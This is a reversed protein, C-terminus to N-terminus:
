FRQKVSSDNKYQVKGGRLEDIDSNTICVSEIKLELVNM